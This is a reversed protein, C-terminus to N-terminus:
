KIKKLLNKIEKVSLFHSNNKSSYEFGPKVVQGRHSLSRKKIKLNNFQISPMIIFYDKFKRVLHSEDKPCM